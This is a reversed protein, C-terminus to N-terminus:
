KGGESERWLALSEEAVPDGEGTKKTKGTMKMEARKEVIKEEMAKKEAAKRERYFQSSPFQKLAKECVAIVYDAFRRWPQVNLFPRCIRDVMNETSDISM